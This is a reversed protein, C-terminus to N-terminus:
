DTSRAIWQDDMEHDPNLYDDQSCDYLGHSALLRRVRAVEEESMVIEVPVQLEM